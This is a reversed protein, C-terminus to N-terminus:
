AEEKKEKKPTLQIYKNPTFTAGKPLKGTLQYHQNIATTDIAKKIFKRPLVDQDYKWSKGDVITIKGYNDVTISKVGSEIMQKELKKKVEVTKDAVAKQLNLFNIFQPNESLALQLESLENELSNVTALETGAIQKLEDETLVKIYTKEEVM